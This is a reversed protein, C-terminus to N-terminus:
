KEVEKLISDELISYRIYNERLMQNYPKTKEWNRIKTELTKIKSLMKAYENSNELFEKDLNSKKTYKKWSKLFEKRAIKAEARSTSMSEPLLLTIKEHIRKNFLDNKFDHIKKREKLIESSNEYKQELRIRKFLLKTQKYMLPRVGKIMKRDLEDYKLYLISLHASIGLFMEKHTKDNTFKKWEQLYQTEISKLEHYMVIYNKEGFKELSGISQKKDSRQEQIVEILDNMEIVSTM